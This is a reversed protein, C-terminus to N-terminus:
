VVSKRDGVGALGAGILGLTAPEPVEANTTSFTLTGGTEQGSFNWFFPTDDLAPDTSTVTGAGRLALASGTQADVAVTELDFSFGGLPGWLPEIPTNPTTFDVDNFTTATGAGIGAFDGSQSGGIVAATDNVIDVKEALAVTTANDDTSVPQWTGTFGISGTIPGATAATPAALVIAAAAVLHLRRM